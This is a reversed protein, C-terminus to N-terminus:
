KLMPAVLDSSSSARSAHLRRQLYARPNQREIRRAGPRRWAHLRVPQHIIATQIHCTDLIIKIVKQEAGDQFHLHDEISFLSFLTPLILKERLRM